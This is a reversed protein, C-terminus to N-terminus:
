AVHQFRSSTMLQQHARQSLHARHITDVYVSFWDFVGGRSVVHVEGDAAVHELLHPVIVDDVLGVSCLVPLMNLSGSFGM